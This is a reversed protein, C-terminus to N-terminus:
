SESAACCSRCLHYGRNRAEPLTDPGFSTGAEAAMLEDIVDQETCADLDHVVQNRKDGLWRTHEFRVPREVMSSSSIGPAGLPGCRLAVGEPEIFAPNVPHVREHPHSLVRLHM